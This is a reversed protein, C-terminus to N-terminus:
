QIFKVITDWISSTEFGLKWFACGALGYEKMVSLKLDISNKDELWVEYTSGGADFTAYYQGAEELWSPSVGADNLRDQADEMGLAESSVTYGDADTTLQWLRTYFPCGLILQDAPVEALTDAVAEQVFGISAVSGEDGGVYHEDYAMLVVYDAFLAQEDRSYFENYSAPAYNDVSLIMNSDACRLSLERIFELFGTGAEGDLAEFDVNIGDLDYKVAESMLNDILADRKSTTNLVGTTDVDTNELNSILAWVEIGRAHCYDVYDASALSAIGGENDDLYFWTPSLVNIGATSELDSSLLDNAAQSTTQHWVMCITGDKKLHTYEPEEFTSTYILTDTGDLTNNKVYGVFGDETCVESWNDMENLVTVLDGKALRTLVNSRNGGLERVETARRMVTFTEEGWGDSIVVRYPEEYFSYRIDTYQELFSLSLYMQGDEMHVIPYEASRDERAFTYETTEPSAVNVLGDPLAYRLVQETDDWYFRANLDDHVLDFPLYVEGDYYLGTDALAEHDLNIMVADESSLGYFEAFDSSSGSPRYRRTLFAALAVIIILVIVIVVVLARQRRRRRRHKSHPEEM